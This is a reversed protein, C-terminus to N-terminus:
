TQAPATGVRVARDRAMGKAWIGLGILLLALQPLTSEWTPYLGFFDTAPLLPATTAPLLNSIQLAHMGTGLFKFCLYFTLVSAVTFFPRMPIRLGAVTLLFGIIALIVTGSALGIFLDPTSINGAMGLFFLVTEGGERFVALFALLALGILNGSALARMTSDNVYGQWAGLSSKSHLWYSVYLLMAAAFLGTIGEIFERNEGSFAKGLIANITIGLAISSVVGLASGWWVYGSKDWNGSRRLFALLAVVVLMAEMGERFIIVGADFAGYAIQQKYPTLRTSLDDLLATAGADHQAIATTVRAMDVEAIRYDTASRTKVEGEVDPWTSGFADFQAAAAVWDGRRVASRTADLEILLTAITPKGAPMAAAATRNATAQGAFPPKGAIFAQNEANLATLATALADAKKSSLGVSVQSMQAEIARYAERSTDRVGEEIEFWRNEFVKYQAEATALDGATVAKLASQVSVNAAQIEDQPGAARAAIPWALSLLLLVLVSLFMSTCPRIAM